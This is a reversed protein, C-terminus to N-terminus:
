ARGKGDEGDRVPGFERAMSPPLLDEIEARERLDPAEIAILRALDELRRQMERARKQWFPEDGSAADRVLRKAVDFIDSM